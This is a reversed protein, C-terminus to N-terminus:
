LGVETNPSIQTTATIISLELEGKGRGWVCCSGLSGKIETCCGMLELSVELRYGYAESNGWHGARGGRLRWHTMSEWTENEIVSRMM